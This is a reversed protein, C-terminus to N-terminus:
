KTFEVLFVFRQVESTQGSADTGFFVLNYKGATEVGGHILLDVSHNTKDGAMRGQRVPHGAAHLLQWQYASSSRLPTFDFDLVFSEGSRTQLAPSAEGEANGGRVSGPLHFPPSVIQASQSSATLHPITVSNQYGIFLLLAAFVPIAFAPKLWAFFGRTAPAAVDARAPVTEPVTRAELAGERILQRLGELFSATAKVDEACQYCDFYHEEYEERQPPTFENLLYKEAAQLRLAETHDM